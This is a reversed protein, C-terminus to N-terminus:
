TRFSMKGTNEKRNNDNNNNKNRYECRLLVTVEIGKYM